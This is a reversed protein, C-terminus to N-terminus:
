VNDDEKWVELAVWHMLFDDFTGGALCKHPAPSLLIQELLFTFCVRAEDCTLRDPLYHRYKKYVAFFAM